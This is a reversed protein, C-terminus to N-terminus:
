STTHDACRYLVECSAKRDTSFSYRELGASAARMEFTDNEFPSSAKSNWLPDRIMKTARDCADPRPRDPSTTIRSSASNRVPSIIPASSGVSDARGSGSTM